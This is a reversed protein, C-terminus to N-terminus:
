NLLGAKNPFNTIFVVLVAAYAASAAFLEHRRAKTLLSMITAFLLTFVLWVGVAKYETVVGEGTATLHCMIWVPIVMLTMVLISIIAGVFSEVRSASYYTINEDRTKALLEPTCFLKKNLGFIDLKRLSNEIFGDFASWERGSRLTVIDEKKEIFAAESGDLPTKNCFWTRVSRYDRSSPQQLAFTDRTKLLLEDYELLKIHLDDLIEQRSRAEDNDHRPTRKDFSRNRLRRKGKPNAGEEDQYDTKDLDDLERELLTIDQQKELLLRVHLYKFGRFATFNVESSLFAAARPYGNPCEELVRTNTRTVAQEFHIDQDVTETKSRSWARFWRSRKNDANIEDQAEVDFVEGHTSVLTPSRSSDKEFDM